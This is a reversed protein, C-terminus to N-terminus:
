FLTTSVLVESSLSLAEVSYFLLAASLFLFSSIRWESIYLIHVPHYFFFVFPM